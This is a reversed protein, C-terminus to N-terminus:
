FCLLIAWSCVEPNRLENTNIALYYRQELGQVVQRVKV